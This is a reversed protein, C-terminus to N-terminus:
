DGYIKFGGKRTMRTMRIAKMRRASVVLGAVGPEARGVWEIERSQWHFALIYRKM